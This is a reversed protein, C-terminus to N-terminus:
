STLIKRQSLLSPTEELCPFAKATPRLQARPALSILGKTSVIDFKVSAKTLQADMTKERSGRKELNEAIGVGTERICEPAVILSRLHHGSINSLKRSSSQHSSRDLADLVDGGCSFM